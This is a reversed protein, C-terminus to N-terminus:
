TQHYFHHTRKMLSFQDVIIYFVTINEFLCGIQVLNTLTYILSLAYMNFSALVIDAVPMM